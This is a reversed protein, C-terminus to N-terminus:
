TFEEILLLMNQRRPSRRPRSRRHGARLIIVQRPPPTAKVLTAIVDDAEAHDLELWAIDCNDLGRKVDPLYQLPLLAEPDTPRSAKYRDHTEKREAAGNEGDFVVVVEPPSSLNAAGPALLHDRVAVRLL